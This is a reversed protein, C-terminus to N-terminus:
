IKYEQLKISTKKLAYTLRMISDIKTARLHNQKRRMKDTSYKWKENSM